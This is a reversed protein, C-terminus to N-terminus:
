QGVSIIVFHEFVTCCSIDASFYKLFWSQLILTLHCICSHLVAIASCWWHWYKLLVCVCTWGWVRLRKSQPTGKDTGPTMPVAKVCGSSRPDEPPNVELGGTRAPADGELGQTITSSWTDNAGLLGPQVMFLPDAMSGSGRPVLAAWSLTLRM